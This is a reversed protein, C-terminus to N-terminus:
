DTLGDPQEWDALLRILNHSVTQGNDECAGVVAEARQQDGGVAMTIAQIWAARVHAYPSLEGDDCDNVLDTNDLQYVQDRWLLNSGNHRSILALDNLTNQLLDAVQFDAQIRPAMHGGDLEIRVIRDPTIERLRVAYHMEGTDFQDDQRAVRLPVNVVVVADGYRRAYGDRRDSFFVEGTNEKSTFLGWAMIAQVAERSTRHYLIM